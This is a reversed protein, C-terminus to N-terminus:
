RSQRFPFHIHGFSGGSAGQPSVQSEGDFQKRSPEKHWLPSLNLVGNSKDSAVPFAEGGRQAELRCKQARDDFTNRSTHMRREDKADDGQQMCHRTANFLTSDQDLCCGPPHTTTCQLKNRCDKRRRTVFVERVCIFCKAENFQELSVFRGAFM